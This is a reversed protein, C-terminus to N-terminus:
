ALVTQQMSSNRIDNIVSNNYCQNSCLAIDM